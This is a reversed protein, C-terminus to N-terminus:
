AADNAPEELRAALRPSEAKSRGRFLARPREDVALLIRAKDSLQLCDLLAVPRGLAARAEVLGAAEAHTDMM